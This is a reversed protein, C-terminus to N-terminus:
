NLSNLEKKTIGTCSLIINPAIGQILMKKAIELRQNKAGIKTGRKEGREQGIKEAYALRAKREYEEMYEADYLGVITENQSLEKIKEEAEMLDKDDGVIERIKKPDDEVLLLLEKEFKTLEHNNYCKKKVNSLNIHYKEIQKNEIIGREVDAMMFKIVIRDDFKNFLNFNIQIVKKVDLYGEGNQFQEELLKSQYANNKEFLGDYYYKNMEINIRNDLVDMIIDTKMKKENYHKIPLENNLIIINEKIVEKPIKIINSLLDTSYNICSKSTFLVKFIPDFSAPIYKIGNKILIIWKSTLEIM